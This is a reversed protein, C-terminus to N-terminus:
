PRIKKSPNSGLIHVNKWFNIIDTIGEAKLLVVIQNLSKNLAEVKEFLDRKYIVDHIYNDGESVKLVLDMSQSTLTDVDNLAADVLNLYGSTKETWDGLAEQSTGVLERLTTTLENAQQVKDTVYKELALANAMNQRYAALIPMLTEEFIAQISRVDEGGEKLQTVVQQYKLVMELVQNTKHLMEAIGEEFVGNQIESFDMNVDSEGRYVFVMRSGMLSHNFNIIKSDEPLEIRKYFELSVLAADESYKIKAVRGIEVGDMAVPEQLILTGVNEFRVTLLHPGKLIDRLMIFSIAMCLVLVGFSVFFGIKRYKNIQPDEM